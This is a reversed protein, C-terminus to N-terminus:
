RGSLFRQAAMAVIGAAAAKVVPNDLATGSHGGLLQDLLDPQQQRVQTTMQALAGPNQAYNTGGQNFAPVNVGQQQAHTQLWEAFQQRQEPTMREFAQEASQQYMDAPLQPAVQQYRQAVETNSYGQDPAGQQYRNVFGQYEEQHQGGLLNQLFSMAM